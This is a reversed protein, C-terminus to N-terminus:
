MEARSPMSAQAGMRTVAISAAKCAFKVAESLIKEEYIAVALAGSFCDGAATTDIAEVQPAEIVGEFDASKLYAGKAGLTIIINQVGLAAFVQGAKQASEFDTVKVGTLLEAETENPTITHIFPFVSSSLQAAPAPNLIVKLGSKYAKQITYEVTKIPTELQILLINDREFISSANEIDEISLHANAGPAVTICNEGRADVNILAVGSPNETDVVVFDTNIGEQVFQQRAQRGFIDDGIKCVFVTPCGLRATAVAQNAGKGGANMLFKGGIVTEGPTALKEAKIVMDTNSSGVVIIKKM